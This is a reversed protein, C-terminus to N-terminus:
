AREKGSSDAESPRHQPRSGSGPNEEPSLAPHPGMAEAADLAAQEHKACGACVDLQLADNGILVEAPGECRHGHMPADCQCRGDETDPTM